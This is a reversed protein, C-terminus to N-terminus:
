GHPGETGYRRGNTAVTELRANIYADARRVLEHIRDEDEPAEDDYGWRNEMPDHAMRWGESYWRDIIDEDAM